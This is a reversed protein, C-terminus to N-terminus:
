YSIQHESEDKLCKIFKRLLRDSNSIIRGNKQRVKHGFLNREPPNFPFCTFGNLPSEQVTGAATIGSYSKLLFWQELIFLLPFTNFPPYTLLGAQVFRSKSAKPSFAFFRTDKENKM